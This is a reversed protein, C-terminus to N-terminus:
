RRQHNRQGSEEDEGEKERQLARWLLPCNCGSLEFLSPLVPLDVVVLQPTTREPIDHGQPLLPPLEDMVLVLGSPSPLLVVADGACLLSLLPTTVSPEPGASTSNSSAKRRAAASHPKVTLSSCCSGGPRARRCLCSSMETTTSTSFYPTTYISNIHLPLHLYSRLNNQTRLNRIQYEYWPIV